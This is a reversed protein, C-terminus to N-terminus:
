YVNPKLWFGNPRVVYLPIRALRKGLRGIIGPAQTGLKCVFCQEFLGLSEIGAVDRKLGARDIAEEADRKPIGLALIRDLGDEVWKEFVKMQKDSFEGEVRRAESDVKLVRISIPLDDVLCYTEVIKRLSIKEGDALQARLKHLPVLVDVTVPEQFGVDVYIGYGVRGTDVVYGPFICPLRLAELSFPAIGFTRQINNIEVTEDEGEVDLSTWGRGCINEVRIKAELGSVQSNLEDKLATRCRQIKSGYLRLSLAISTM